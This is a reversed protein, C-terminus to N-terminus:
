LSIVGSFRCNRVITSASTGHGLVGGCLGNEGNGGCVVRAAVECQMIRNRGGKAFGVLGACHLGGTVSGTTKVNLVAADAIYRFPATGQNETDVIALDITHGSGDFFGAFPHSDTGVMATVPGIDATLRYCFDNESGANVMSAFFEWDASKMAAWMPESALNARGM